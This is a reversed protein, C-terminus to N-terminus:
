FTYSGGITGMEEENVTFAIPQLSAPAINITYTVNKNTRWETIASSGDTITNLAVGKTFNKTSTTGNNFRTTVTYTINLMADAPITQPMVLYNHDDHDYNTAFDSTEINTAAAIVNWTAKTTPTAAPEWLYNQNHGNYVGEEVTLSGECLLDAFSLSNVTVNYSTIGDPIPSPNVQHVIVNLKALVHRFLLAVTPNGTGADSDYKQSEVFDAYMLNTTTTNPNTKDFTFTITSKGGNRTLEIRPDDDPTTAAFDLAYNPWYYTGDVTSPATVKVEDMHPVDTGDQWAWVTYDANTFALSEHEARSQTVYNAAVFDIQSSTDVPELVSVDTTCSVLAVSALTAFFFKKKM